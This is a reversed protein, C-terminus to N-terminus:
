VIINFGPLPGSQGGFLGLIPSRAGANAQKQDVGIL